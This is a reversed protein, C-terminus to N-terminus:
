VRVGGVEKGGPVKAAEREATSLQLGQDEWGQTGLKYLTRQRERHPTPGDKGRRNRSETTEVLTANDGELAYGELDDKHEEESFVYTRYETNAWGTGQYQSSDEWDETLYHLFGGHTVVVIEKEPRAKLWRRADRARDKIAQNTPQYRGEFKNNWGDRLLGLDVPLGKEVFEEKLVEPDSGTDCPVDSTEQVDPLAILKVDDGKEFAPEFSHLATYLTRRLPSATVLEIREHYPFAHRLTRCQEHGLDTLSPDHIVHNATSLNHVGQAHRVLHIVPPM